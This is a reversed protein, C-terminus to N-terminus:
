PHRRVPAKGTAFPAVALDTGPIRPQVATHEIQPRQADIARRARRLQERVEDRQTTREQLRRLAEALLANETNRGREVLWLALLVGCLAVALCAVLLCVMAFLAPDIM